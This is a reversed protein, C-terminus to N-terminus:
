LKMLLRILDETFENLPSTLVNDIEITKTIKFDTATENEYVPIVIYDEGLMKELKYQVFSVYNDVNLVQMEQEILEAQKLTMGKTDGLLLQKASVGYRERFENLKDAKYQIEATDSSMDGFAEIPLTVMRKLKNGDAM